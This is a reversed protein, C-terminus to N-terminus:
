HGGGGWGWTGFLCVVGGGGGFFFFFFCSYSFLCFVFLFCLYYLEISLININNINFEKWSLNTFNVLFSCFLVLFWFFFFFFFFFRQLCVM